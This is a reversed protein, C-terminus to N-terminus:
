ASDRRVARCTDRVSIGIEEATRDRFSAAFALFRELDAANTAIGVSARIAGIELGYADRIGLRLEDFSMGEAQRFFTGIQEASLGYTAEGAGPNCFCGTRLSIRQEGALEEVRRIDFAHGAPDVLNFAVTGGRAETTAPGHLRVMSAGNGHVLTRLGALMIGTMRGVHDHVAEIGVSELHRLGYEVAPLNLYDVTGDEFAAEGAARYFGDGQVSAIQITGGAFWPRCLRAAAERRM